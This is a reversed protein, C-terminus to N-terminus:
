DLFEWTDAGDFRRVPINKYSDPDVMRFNVAFRGGNVGSWHTTCGCVKCSHFQLSKDGWSYINTSGEPANLVVGKAPPSHVWLAAVRRCISCNCSVLRKPPHAVEFSVAGCHCSGTIM